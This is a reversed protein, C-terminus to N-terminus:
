SATDEGKEPPGTRVTGSAAVVGRNVAKAGLSAAESLQADASVDAVQRLLDCLQKSNRVFDGGTMESQALVRHLEAGDAWRYASEVFGPDLDRVLEVGHRSEVRKVRAALQVLRGYLDALNRNPWVPAVPVRSRGEFCFTSVMAAVEAPALGALLGAEMAEALLIDAEHHIRALRRGPETLSWGKVYGLDTMVAVVRDFQGALSQKRRELQRALKAVDHALHDARQAAKLHEKIHPCAAVPHERVARGEQSQVAAREGESRPLGKSVEQLRAAVSALFQRDGPLYPTPLDVRALRRLPSSLEQPGFTRVRGSIGIAVVRVSGNRRQSTAIVVGGETWGPVAVVDGPAALAMSRVIEERGPGRSARRAEALLARYSTVDGLDCHAKARAETARVALRDLQSAMAVGEADEHFQAFSLALLKKAQDPEYHAILNAAMNYNPRFASRVPSSRAAALGAVHEFPIFPAHCVVAYGQEDIGRRGARGTLQTYDGPTLAVHHDGSFKSLKEIVVSRAPMNVGLALTETAFVVKVLAAEFCAEVAQRFPPVMGAHHSALGAELGRLVRSYGLSELDAHALSETAQEFILRIQKRESASTLSIGESLCQAVAEDCASRSFIFYIAPLMANEALVEIAEYRRPARLRQSRASRGAMLALTPNPEGGVFTPALLVASGSSRRGALYLHELSVPRREEIIASTAGRVTAVWAALEEANSVTASLCVLRVGADLHIIVEEWVAGRYPDQLYHVEDLIVVDLGALTSSGAYLMNRLVETTMVVIPADAQLSTDGTLLGVQDPGYIRRLDHFKQNSLAKLPTTYFAKAGRLHAMEIAFEAVLTKGSGTPAAVLVSEGAGYADIAQRQYPDLQLDRRALLRAEAQRALWALEADPGITPVGTALSNITGVISVFRAATRADRGSGFGGSNREGTGLSSSTAPGPSGRGQRVGAV